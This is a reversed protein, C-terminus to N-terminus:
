EDLGGDDYAMTDAMRGVDRNASLSVKTKQAKSKKGGKDSAKEEKMKENGLTNLLAGVKRVQESNLDRCLQKAFEPMFLAYGPKKSNATLLPILTERLTHFQQPTQPNFLPLSSLDVASGPDTSSSLVTVPKAARNPNIGGAGGFLDASVALDAEKEHARARALREAETEEEDSDVELLSEKKRRNAEIKEEIIQARPKKAAKAAAEADAKAKAAKKAKEREVESDEDEEWDDLVEPEEEDDFRGRRVVAPGVAPAAAESGSSDSDSEDWSTPAKSPAM